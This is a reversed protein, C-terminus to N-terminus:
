QIVAFALVGFILGILSSSFTGILYYEAFQKNDFQKFRTLSKLAAIFALGHPLQLLLLVVIMLRELMGIYRGIKQPSDRYLHETKVTMMESEREGNPLMRTRVETKENAITYHDKQIDDKPTFDKLLIGLFYGAGFTVLIFICGLALGREMENWIITGNILSVFGNYISTMSFPELTLFHLVVVIAFIHIMQDTVFLLTQGLTSRIRRISKIKAYDVFFHTITILVVALLMMLISGGFLLWYFSLLVVYVLLHIFCHALLGKTLHRTKLDIM